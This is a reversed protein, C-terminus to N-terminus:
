FVELSLCLPLSPSGDWMVPWLLKHCPITLLVSFSLLGSTEIGFYHWDLRLRRSVGLFLKLLRM